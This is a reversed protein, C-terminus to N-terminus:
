RKRGLGPSGGQVFSRHNSKSFTTSFANRDSIVDHRDEITSSPNIQELGIYGNFLLLAEKDIQLQSIRAKNIFKAIGGKPPKEESRKCCRVLCDVFQEEIVDHDCKPAISFLMQAYIINFSPTMLDISIREALSLFNDRTQLCSHRGILKIALKTDM